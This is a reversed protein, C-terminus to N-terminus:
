GSRSPVRLGDPLDEADPALPRHRTQADSVAERELAARGADADELGARGLPDVVILTGAAREGLGHPLKAVGGGDGRRDGEGALEPARQHDVGRGLPRQRVSASGRSHSKASSTPWATSLASACSFSAAERRRMTRPAPRRAGAAPACGARRRGAAAPIPPARAGARAPAARRRRRLGCREDLVGGLLQLEREVLQAFQRAPQMGGHQGLAAQSGRELHERQPRREDDRECPM